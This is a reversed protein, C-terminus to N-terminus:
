QGEGVDEFETALYIHESSHRVLYVPGENRLMDVVDHLFSRRFHLLVHGNTVQPMTLPEDSDLFVIKAIAETTEDYLFMVAEDGSASIRYSYKTVQTNTLTKM